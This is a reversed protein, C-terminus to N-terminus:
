AHPGTWDPSRFSGYSAASGRPPSPSGPSGSFASGYPSGPSAAHPSTPQSGAAMSVRSSSRAVIDLLSQAQSAMAYAQGALQAAREAELRLAVDDPVAALAAAPASPSGPYVAPYMQSGPAGGGVGGAAGLTPSAPEPAVRSAKFPSSWPPTAARAPPPQDDVRAMITPSPPCDFVDLGGAAKKKALAAGAHDGHGDAGSHGEGELTYDRQSYIHCCGLQKLSDMRGIWSFVFLMLFLGCSATAILGTWSAGVSNLVTCCVFGKVTEWVPHFSAYSLALVLSDVSASVNAFLTQLAAVDSGFGSALAPNANIAAQLDILTSNAQDLSATVDLGMTSQIIDLVTGGTGTLYYSVLASVDGSGGGLSLSSDGVMALVKAEVNVCVDNGVRLVATLAAVILWALVLLILLLLVLPKVFAPWDVLTGVAVLVALGSLLAYAIYLAVVRWKDITQALDSHGDVATEIKDATNARINSLDSSFSAFGSLSSHADDIASIYPALMAAAAPDSSAMSQMSAETVLLQTDLAQVSAVAAQGASVATDIFTPVTDIAILGQDVLGRDVQTIGYVGAALAATAAALVAAKLAKARGGALVKRANKGTRGKGRVCVCCTCCKVLRWMLFSLLLIVATVLAVLSGVINPILSSKVYPAWDSIDLQALTAPKTALPLKRWAAAPCIDQAAAMGACLALAALAAYLALPPKM